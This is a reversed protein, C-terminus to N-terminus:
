CNVETGGETIKERYTRSRVAMHIALERHVADNTRQRKEEEWYGQLQRGKGSTHM